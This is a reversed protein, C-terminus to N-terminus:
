SDLKKIVPAAVTVEVRYGAEAFAALLGDFMAKFTSHAGDARAREVDSIAEVSASTAADMGDAYLRLLAEGDVHFPM